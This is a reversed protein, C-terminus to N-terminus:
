QFEGVFINFDFIDVDGDEDLDSRLNQAQFDGIFINFDFIDIVENDDLDGIGAPSPSSSPSSVPSPSLSPSPSAPTPSTTAFPGCNPLTLWGYTVDSWARNGYVPGYSPSRASVLFGYTRGSQLGDLNSLVYTLNYKASGIRTEPGNPERLFVEYNFGAGFYTVVTQDVSQIQDTVGTWELTVKPNGGDCFAVPQRLSFTVIQDTAEQAKPSFVQPNRFLLLGIVIGGVILGLILFQSFGKQNFM